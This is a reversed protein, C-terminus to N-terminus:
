TRDRLSKLVLKGACKLTDFVGAGNRAVAEFFPVDRKNFISELYAISSIEPADRKNYQLVLPIQSLSKGMAALNIQLNDWSELNADMRKQRSDVVFVVGDVGSLIAKRSADYFVQGPVSYLHFRVRFGRIEGVALPLFDFYITREKETPLSILEGKVLPSTQSYIYQLNTTKGSMGAGYYVIKCNIERAAYDVFSM